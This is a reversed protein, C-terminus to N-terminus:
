LSKHADWIKPPFEWSLNNWLNWPMMKVPSPGPTRPWSKSTELSITPHFGGFDDMEIPNEMIKVMWKPPYIGRNKSVDVKNSDYFHVRKQQVFHHKALLSGPYIRRVSSIKKQDLVNGRFYFRVPACTESVMTKNMPLSVFTESSWFILKASHSSMNTSVNQYVGQSFAAGLPDGGLLHSRWM